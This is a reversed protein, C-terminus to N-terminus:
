HGWFNWLTYLMPGSTKFLVSASWQKVRWLVISIRICVHLTCIKRRHILQDNLCILEHAWITWHLPRRDSTTKIEKRPLEQEIRREIWSSPRIEYRCCKVWEYKANACMYDAVNDLALKTLTSLSSGAEKWVLERCVRWRSLPAAARDYINFEFFLFGRWMHM